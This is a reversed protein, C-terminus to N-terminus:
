KFKRVQYGREVADNVISNLKKAESRQKRHSLVVAIAFTFSAALLPGFAVAKWSEGGQVLIDLSFAFASLLYICFLVVKEFTTFM